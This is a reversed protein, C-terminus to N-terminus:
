YQSLNSLHNVELSIEKIANLFCYLLSDSFDFLGFDSISVHPDPHSWLHLLDLGEENHM